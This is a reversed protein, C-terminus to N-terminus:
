PGTISIAPDDFGDFTLTYSWSITINTVDPEWLPNPCTFDALFEAESTGTATQEPVRLAGNRESPINVSESSTETETFPDVVKSKSGPNKCVGTFRTNVSTVVTANTHGVGQIETATCTLTATNANFTCVPQGSRNAYHAGSPANDFDTTAVVVLAPRDVVQTPTKASDSCAALAVALLPLLALRKM